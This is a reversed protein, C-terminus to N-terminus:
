RHRNATRAGQSESTAKRSLTSEDAETSKKGEGDYKMTILLVSKGTKGLKTSLRM